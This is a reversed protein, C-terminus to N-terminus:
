FDNKMNRNKEQMAKNKAREKAEFEKKSVNFLYENRFFIFLGYASDSFLVSTNGKFYDESPLYKLTPNCQEKFHLYGRKEYIPSFETVIDSLKIRSSNIALSINNLSDHVYGFSVIAPVEGKDTFTMTYEYSDMWMKRLKKERVYKRTLAKVEKESMYWHYDLFVTDPADGYIQKSAYERAQEATEIKPEKSGSTSVNKCSIACIGLIALILAFNSKM